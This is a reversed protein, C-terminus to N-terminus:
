NSSFDIKQIDESIGIWIDGFDGLVHLKIYKEIEQVM